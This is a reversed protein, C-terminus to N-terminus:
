KTSLAKLIEEIAATAQAETPASGHWANKGEEFLKVGKGKLTDAVIMTPKGTKAKANAKAKEVANVIASVDHGDCSIVNWGFAEFKDAIPEINMVDKVQGDIQGKNWDIIACVHDLKHMPISLAAEWVQGEQIEGDGMICYVMSDVGDLRMGLAKGQAISLGQGLSGTSAEIGPLRARDPHGQLPSGYERLTLLKDTSFYGSMAMAAYLAPVGHGKSLIFRDREKWEPNKPDHKLLNFYFAAMLDALSLSGGPHGSAAKTIMKVCWVRIERAIGQLEETNKVATSTPM